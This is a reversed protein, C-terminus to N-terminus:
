MPTLTIRTSASARGASTAADAFREDESSDPLDGTDTRIFQRQSPRIRALLDRRSKISLPRGPYLKGMRVILSEPLAGAFMILQWTFKPGNLKRLRWVWLGLAGVRWATPAWWSAQGPRLNMKWCKMLLQWQLATLDRTRDVGRKDALRTGNLPTFISPIFFAFLGRREVELILDLTAAVDEDTEGPSGVILTMAPFWNNRNLIELGRVIVSSWEDIPFPVAKSPM